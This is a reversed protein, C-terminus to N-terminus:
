NQLGKMIASEKTGAPKAKYIRWGDSRPDNANVMKEEPTFMPAQEEAVDDKKFGKGPVWGDIPKCKCKGPACSCNPMGCQMCRKESGESVGKNIADINGFKRYYAMAHKFKENYEPDDKQVGNQALEREIHRVLPMEAKLLEPAGEAVGASKPTFKRYAQGMGGQSSQITEGLPREIIKEIPSKEIGLGAGGQAGASYGELQRTVLGVELDPKKALLSQRAKLAKEKSDFTVAKGDKSWVKGNIKLAWQQKAVDLDHREDDRPGRSFGTRNAHYNTHAEDLKLESDPFAMYTDGNVDGARIVFVGADDDGSEDLGIEWGMSALTKEAKSMEGETGNWWMSALKKLIAEEDPEREDGGPPAFEFVFKSSIEHPLRLGFKLNLWKQLISPNSNSMSRTSGDSARVKITIVKGDDTASIIKNPVAPVRPAESLRKGLVQQVLLEPAFDIDGALERAAALVAERTPQLRKEEVDRRLKTILSQAEYGLGGIGEAISDKDEQEWKADQWADKFVEELGYVASELNNKAEIVDSVAWKVSKTDMGYKQALGQIEAIIDNVTNDYKINKTAQRAQSLAMELRAVREADEALPNYTYTGGQQRVGAVRKQPQNPNAIPAGPKAPKAAPQKAVPKQAPKAVPKQAGPKATTSKPQANPYNGGMPIKMKAYVDLMIDQPVGNKVLLTAVQDSDTPSGAKQWASNLKDATIKTTINHGKTKAWDVASGVAKGAAGKINDWMGEDIQKSHLLSINSFLLKIAAENLEVSENTGRLAAVANKAASIKQQDVQGGLATIIKEIKEPGSGVFNGSSDLAYRSLNADLIKQAFAQTQYSATKGGVQAAQTIADQMAVQYSNYDTVEGNAVKEKFIEMASNAVGRPGLSSAAGAAQQGADSVSQDGKMAQGIQGAAYAMGGTKAGSYAASSFKEGQLLKDVMKFLGLAAAGGIGAGSIGAAAILASYILSQAVPHKKAFDRYKQVYQMVGQDGGTAQKLKEAAQDYMADINKIPGSNQVKTKLEEWAKNIAGAADKGKGVMTRNSGSDTAGQEINAFLQKIQDATLQAEVIKQGASEWLKYTRTETLLKTTHVGELISSM